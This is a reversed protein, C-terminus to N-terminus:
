LYRSEQRCHVHNWYPLHHCTLALVLSTKHWWPWLWNVLMHETLSCTKRLLCVLAVRRHDAEM